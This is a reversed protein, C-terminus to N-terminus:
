GQDENREAPGTPVAAVDDEGVGLDAPAEEPEPEDVLDWDLTSMDFDLDAWAVPDAARQRALWLAFKVARARDELLADRWQTASWGTLTECQEAESVLMTNLDLLWPGADPLSLNFQAM